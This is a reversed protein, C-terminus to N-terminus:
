NWISSLFEPFGNSATMHIEAKYSTSVVYIDSWRQDAMKLTIDVPAYVKEFIWYLIM